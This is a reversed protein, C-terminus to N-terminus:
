WCNECYLGLINGMQNAGRKENLDDVHYVCRCKDCLAYDDECRDCVNVGHVEVTAEFEGCGQCTM